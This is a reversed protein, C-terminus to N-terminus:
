VNRVKRATLVLGRIAQPLQRDQWKREEEVSGDAARVAKLAYWASGLSHDAMHATAVAHGVARAVAVAAKDTSERAVAIARISAKRAEGVSAEGRRWADAVTLAEILRRDIRRGYLHLVHRACDCAWEILQYHQEKRLPGGRHEVVFRRDSMRAKSGVMSRHALRCDSRCSGLLMQKVSPAKKKGALDSYWSPLNTNLPLPGPM